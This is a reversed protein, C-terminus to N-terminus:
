IPISEAAVQQKFRLQPKTLTMEELALHAQLLVLPAPAEYVERSKIGILRNEMHDIRGVGNEGAIENLRQILDVGNMKKGDLAVPIGKEFEIEVYAPKDPTKEPSKTWIFADEPPEHEPTGLIRM